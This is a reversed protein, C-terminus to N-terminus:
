AHVGLHDVARMVMKETITEIPGNATLVHSETKWPAWVVPDSPGFIAVVPLGFAAAMHAPGSDNGLFLAAHSLLTKLQELSGGALVPWMQFPSVDEGPGAIFVPQLGLERKLHQAVSIFFPAPWTKERQSAIPHIVAYPGPASIAPLGPGSYLRARPVETQPVGLYFVASAAHEATHVKRNVGLIEQASPIRVNYVGRYPFHAFGARFRAGSLLTLRASRPGGHLNLCLAPRFKRLERIGPDLVTDVDRNGRYVDAFRPDSVVAIRLDPRAQKLLHIAPTTLVSDGLSRIRIIAVRAGRDLRDLIFGSSM